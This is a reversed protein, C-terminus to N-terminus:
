LGARVETAAREGARAAGDMCGTWYTSSEPGAWHLRGIPPRMWLGVGQKARPLLAHSRPGPAQLLLTASTSLSEADNAAAPSSKQNPLTRKMASIRV